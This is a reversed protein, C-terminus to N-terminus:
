GLLRVKRWCLNGLNGSSFYVALFYVFFIYFHCLVPILQTKGVPPDGAVCPLDSHGDVESGRRM